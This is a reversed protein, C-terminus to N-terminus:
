SEVLRALRDAGEAGALYADTMAEILSFKARYFAAMDLEYDEFSGKPLYWRLFMSFLIRQSCIIRRDDGTGEVDARRHFGIEHLARPVAEGQEYVPTEYAIGYRAYLRTLPEIMIAQSREPYARAIRVAGDWVNTFGNELCFLLARWHIALKCLGCHSLLLSGYRLLNPLYNEYLIFRFLKDCPVSRHAFADHDGFFRKLKGVQDAVHEQHLLGLRTMTLLQVRRRKDYAKIAAWTSDSGGSYLVVVSDREIGRVLPPRTLMEDDRGSAPRRRM